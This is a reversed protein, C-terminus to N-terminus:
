CSIDSKLLKVDYMMVFPLYIICSLVLMGLVIIILNITFGSVIGGGIIWPLPWPALLYPIEILNSKFCIYAVITQIMPSLFFPIQLYKNGIIPLGYLVQENINYIGAIMMSKKLKKIKSSKGILYCDIVLGLTSGVGGIWVFWQYFQETGIYRIPSDTLFCNMNILIMQIWLPRLLVGLISVGHIGFLWFFCILIVLICIIPLSSVLGLIMSIIEKMYVQYVFFYRISGIYMCALIPFLLQRLYNILINNFSSNIKIDMKSIVVLGVLNIVVSLFGFYSVNDSSSEVVIYGLVGSFIINNVFDKNSYKAYFYGSLINIIIPINRLFLLELNKLLKLDFINNIMIALSYAILWIVLTSYTEKFINFIKNQSIKEIDKNIKNFM